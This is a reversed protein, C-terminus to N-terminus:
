VRFGLGYLEFGFLLDKRPVKEGYAGDGKALM